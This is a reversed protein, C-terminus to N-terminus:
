WSWIFSFFWIANNIIDIVLTVGLNIPTTLLRLIALITDLIGNNTVKFGSVINAYTSLMKHSSALGPFTSLKDFFWSFGRFHTVNYGHFNAFSYFYKDISIPNEANLLVNVSPDNAWLIVNMTLVYIGLTLVIIKVFRGCGVM